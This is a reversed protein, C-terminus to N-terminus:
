HRGGGKKGVKFKFPHWSLENLIFIILQQNKSEPITSTLQQIKMQVHGPIIVCKNM